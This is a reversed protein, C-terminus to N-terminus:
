KENEHMPSPFPLGSWQEAQLIGTVPSGLPRGHIPDCPTLCSQLLKAAAAASAYRKLATKLEYFFQPSPVSFDWVSRGSWIGRDHM